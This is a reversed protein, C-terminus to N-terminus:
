DGSIVTVPMDLVYRAHHGPFQGSHAETVTLINIGLQRLKHVYASWRPGPHTIPTCGMSGSKILESLAWAERGNLELVRTGGDSESIQVPLYFKTRSM